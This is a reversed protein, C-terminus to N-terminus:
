SCTLVTPDLDGTNGAYVWLKEGTEIMIGPLLNLRYFEKSNNTNCNDAGDRFSAITDTSLAVIKVLAEIDSGSAIIRGSDIVTYDVLRRFGTDVWTATTAKRRSFVTSTITSQTTHGICIAPVGVATETRFFFLSSIRSIQQRTM